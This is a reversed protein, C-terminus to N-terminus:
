GRFDLEKFRGMAGDGIGMTIDFTLLGAMGGHCNDSNRM